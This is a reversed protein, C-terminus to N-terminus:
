PGIQFELLRARDESVVVTEAAVTARVQTLPSYMGMWVAYSGAALNATSIQVHDVVVEGPSWVPPPYAHDTIAQDMQGLLEHDKCRPTLHFFATWDEAAPRVRRWWLTLQLPQSATPLADVRYGILELEAGLVIKVPVSDAPLKVAPRPVKVPGFLIRDGVVPNDAAVTPVREFDYPLYIGLEFSYAGPLM